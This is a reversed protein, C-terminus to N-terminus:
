HGVVPSESGRIKHARVGGASPPYKAADPILGPGESGLGSAMVVLIGM